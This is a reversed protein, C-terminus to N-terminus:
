GSRRKAAHAALASWTLAILPTGQPLAAKTISDLFSAEGSDVSPLMRRQMIFEHLGDLEVGILVPSFEEHLPPPLEPFQL